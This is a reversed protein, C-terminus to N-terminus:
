YYDDIEISWNAADGGPSVRIEYSGPGTAFTQTQGTGNLLGFGRVTRGTGAATVRATPGSCFFIWTCTGQFGMSYVVRWRDGSIHFVGSDRGSFRAVPRWQPTEAVSLGITAHAPATRHGSPSQGTVIGPATGPAPVLHVATRFGLSTLAHQADAVREGTVSPVPVPAPGRSLVVKVAADRAILAGAGPHQSVAM